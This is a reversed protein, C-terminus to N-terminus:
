FTIRVGREVRRPNSVDCTNYGHADIKTKDNGSGDVYKSVTVDVCVGTSPISLSFTSTATTSTPPPSSLRVITVDQGSCASSVTGPMPATDSNPFVSINEYGALPHKVDWYLACESGLDASYFAKQSERGTSSVILEKYAILIVGSIISLVITSIIISFFLVFGGNTKRIKTERKM